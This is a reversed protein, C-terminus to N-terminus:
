EIVIKRTETFAGSRLLVTYVGRSLGSGDFRLMSGSSPVEGDLLLAVRRGLMDHVTVVAHKRGQAQVPIAITGDRDPRYPNPYGAELHIGHVEVPLSEVDVTRYSISKLIIGRPDMYFSKM